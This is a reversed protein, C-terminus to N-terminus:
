RKIEVMRNRAMRRKKKASQNRDNDDSKGVGRVKPEHASKRKGNVEGRYGEEQSPRSVHGRVGDNDEGITYNTSGLRVAMEQAMEGRNQGQSEMSKTGADTVNEGEEFEDTTELEHTVTPNTENDGRNGQMKQKREGDDGVETDDYGEEKDDDENDVSGTDDELEGGEIDRESIGVRAQDSEGLAISKANEANDREGIGGTKSAYEKMKHGSDVGRERWEKGGEENGSFKSRFNGLKGGSWSGQNTKGEETKDRDLSTSEEGEDGSGAGSRSGSQDGNVDDNTDAENDNEIGVEIAGGDEITGRKSEAKDDKRTEIQKWSNTLFSKRSNNTEQKEVKISNGEKRSYTGNGSHSDNGRQISKKRENNVEKGKERLSNVSPFGSKQSLSASSVESDHWTAIVVQGQSLSTRKEKESEYSSENKSNTMNSVTYDNSLDDFESGSYNKNVEVGDVSKVDMVDTSGGAPGNTVGYREEGNESNSKTKVGGISSNRWSPGNNASQVASDVTRNAWTKYGDYHTRNSFAILFLSSSNVAKEYYEELEQKTMSGPDLITRDVREYRNRGLNQQSHRLELQNRRQSRKLEDKDMEKQLDRRIFEDEQYGLSKNDNVKDIGLLKAEEREAEEDQVEEMDVREIRTLESDRMKAM